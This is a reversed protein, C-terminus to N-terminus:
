VMMCVGLFQGVLLSFACADPNEEAHIDAYLMINKYLADRVKLGVGNPAKLLRRGETTMICSLFSRVVKYQAKIDLFPMELFCDEMYDFLEATKTSLATYMPLLGKVENRTALYKWVATKYDEEELVYAEGVKKKELYALRYADVLAKAVEYRHEADVSNVAAARKAQARTLVVM